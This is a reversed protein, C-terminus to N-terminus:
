GGVETANMTMIFNPFQPVSSWFSTSHIWSTPLQTQPGIYVVSFTPLRIFDDPSAKAKTDEIDYDNKWLHQAENGTAVPSNENDSSWRLCYSRFSKRCKQSRTRCITYRTAHHALWEWSFLQPLYSTWAVSLYDTTAEFRRSEYVYM